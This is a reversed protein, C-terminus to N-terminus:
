TIVDSIVDHHLFFPLFTHYPNSRTFVTDDGLPCIVDLANRHVMVTPSGFPAFTNGMSLGLNSTSGFICVKMGSSSGNGAGTYYHLQSMKYGKQVTKLFRMNM